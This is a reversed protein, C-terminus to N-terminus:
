RAPVSERLIRLLEEDLRGANADEQLVAVAEGHSLARKYPRDAATLADYMDCLGIIRMPLPMDAAQLGLPYGSGDLKEHHGYAYTDVHELDDTWPIQSLFRHTAEAHYEVLARERDDLTGRRIQLYHLEETTLYPRERGDPEVYTRDAIM